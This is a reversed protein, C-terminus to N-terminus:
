HNKGNAPLPSTSTLINKYYTFLQSVQRTPTTDSSLPNSQESTTIEKRHPM